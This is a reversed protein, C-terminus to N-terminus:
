FVEWKESDSLSREDTGHVDHVDHVITSIPPKLQANAERLNNMGIGRGHVNMNIVNNVNNMDNVNNMSMTLLSTAIYEGRGVAKVLGAKALEMLLRRTTNENKGLTAAIEKPRMPSGADTLLAIIEQRERSMRYEETSGLLIWLGLSADFQLALDQEEFDRGTVLLNADARGRERRLVWVSDACGTLGTTGSVADLPDDTPTRKNLHHVVLVAIGHADALAKLGSLAAYDDAYLGADSNAPARVKALTDIIILRTAPHQAIFGELHALGDEHLRPWATALHLGDPAPEGHLMMELRKKLRRPTDELALYLTEGQQVQLKSLAVGGSAVSLALGLALWSKGMKPRGALLTAGEPLLGPVIWRPDPFDRALLEAATLTLPGEAQVPAPAPAPYRSVSKAIARVEDEPLPPKCQERNIALLAQELAAGEVGRRRLTGALSTLTSNRAGEPIVGGPAGAAVPSTGSTNASAYTKELSDALEELESINYRPGRHELLVVPKPDAPVKFNMAGVPRLLRALDHTADLQWGRRAWFTRLAAQFDRLLKEAREREGPADFLWPERFCWLAYLGHGSSVIATPAAPFEGLAALAEEESAPLSASKHANADRIDIDAWICGIARAGAATGRTRPLDLQSPDHQLSMCIYVDHRAATWTTILKAAHERDRPYRLWEAKKDRRRWLVLLGEADGFLGKLYAATSYDSRSM